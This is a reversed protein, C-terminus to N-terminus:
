SKRCRVILTGREIAKGTMGTNDIKLTVVDGDSLAKNADTVTEDLDYPTWASIATEDTGQHFVPDDSTYDGSDRKSVTFEIYDSGDKATATGLQIWQAEILKCDYPAVFLPFEAVATGAAVQSDNTWTVTFEHMEDTDSKAIAPDAATDGSPGIFQGEFKKILDGYAM